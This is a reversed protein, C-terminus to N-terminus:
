RSAFKAVIDAYGDVQTRNETKEEFLPTAVPVALPRESVKKDAASYQERLAILDKRFTKSEKFSLTKAAEAFKGRESSPLASAAEAVLRLRHETVLAKQSSVVLKKSKGHLEVNKEEALKLKNKLSKVNGALAKVVDIKGNPIEVYNETFVRKMGSMFNETLKSRLRSRLAIKNTKVWEEVVYSLYQDVKKNLNAEHLSKAENYRTQYAEQLQKALGKAVTRVASEFLVKSQRKDEETLTQNGQFLKASENFRIKLKIPRAVNRSEQLESVKVAHAAAARWDSGSFTKVGGSMGAVHISNGVVAVAAVGKYIGSSSDSVYYILRAKAAVSSLAAPVSESHLISTFYVDDPDTSEWDYTNTADDIAKTLQSTFDTAESLRNGRQRRSEKKLFDPKDDSDEEEDLADKKKEDDSPEDEEDILLDDDDENESETVPDEDGLEITDLDDVLEDLDLDVGDTSAEADEVDDEELKEDEAAVDAAEDDDEEKLKENSQPGVSAKTTSAPSSDQVIGKAPDFSFSAYDATSWTNEPGGVAVAQNSLQTPQQNKLALLNEAM